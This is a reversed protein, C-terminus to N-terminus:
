NEAARFEEIQSMKPFVLAEEPCLPLLSLNRSYFPFPIALSGNPLSVKLILCKEEDGTAARSDKSTSKTRRATGM